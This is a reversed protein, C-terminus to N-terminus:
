YVDGEVCGGPEIPFDKTSTIRTLKDAATFRLTLTQIETSEVARASGFQRFNESLKSSPHGAATSAVQPVVPNDLTIVSRSVPEYVRPTQGYVTSVFAGLVIPLHIRINRCFRSTSM